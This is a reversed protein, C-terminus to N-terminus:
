MVMYLVFFFFFPFIFSLLFLSLISVGKMSCLDIDLTYCNYCFFFSFFFLRVAPSRRRNQGEMGVDRGKKEM